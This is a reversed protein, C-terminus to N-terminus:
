PLECFLVSNWHIYRPPLQLTVLPLQHQFTFALERADVAEEGPQLALFVLQMHPDEQAAISSIRLARFAAPGPQPQLRALDSNFALIDTLDRGKGHFFCSVEEMAQLEG